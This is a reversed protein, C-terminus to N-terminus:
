VGRGKVLAVCLYRHEQGHRFLALSALIPAAGGPAGEVQQRLAELMRSVSSVLVDEKDYFQSYLTSRAVNSRELIDQATIADYRKEAMLAILAAIIMAQTRRSRRDRKESKM